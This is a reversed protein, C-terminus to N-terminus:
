PNQICVWSTIHSTSPSSTTIPQSSKNLVGLLQCPLGTHNDVQLYSRKLQYCCYFTCITYNKTGKHCFLLMLHFHESVSM